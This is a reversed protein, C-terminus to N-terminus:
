SYVETDNYEIFEALIYSPVGINLYKYLGHQYRLCYIYFTLHLIHLTRLM